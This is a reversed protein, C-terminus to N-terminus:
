RRHRADQATGWGSEMGSSTDLPQAPQVVADPKKAGPGRTPEPSHSCHGFIPFQLPLHLHEVSPNWAHWRCSGLPLRLGKLFSRLKQWSAGQMRQLSNEWSQTQGQTRSVRNGRGECRSQPAAHSNAKGPARRIRAQGEDSM